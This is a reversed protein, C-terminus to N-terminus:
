KTEELEEREPQRGNDNPLVHTKELSLAPCFM